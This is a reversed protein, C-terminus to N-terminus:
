KKFFVNSFSNEKEATVEQNPYSERWSKLYLLLSLSGRIAEANYVTTLLKNLMKNLNSFLLYQINSNLALTFWHADTVMGAQRQEIFLLMIAFSLIGQATTPVTAKAIEM